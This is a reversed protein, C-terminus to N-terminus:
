CGPYGGGLHKSRMWDGTPQVTTGVHTYTDRLEVKASWGLNVNREECSDDEEKQKEHAECVFEANTCCSIAVGLGILAIHIQDSDM